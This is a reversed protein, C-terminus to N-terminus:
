IGQFTLSKPDGPLAPPNGIKNVYDIGANPTTELIANYESITISISESKFTSATAKIRVSYSGTALRTRGVIFKGNYPIAYLTTYRYVM